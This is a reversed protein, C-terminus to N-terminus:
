EERSAAFKTAINRALEKRVPIFLKESLPKNKAVARLVDRIMSKVLQYKADIEADPLKQLKALMVSMLQLEIRRVDDAPIKWSDSGCELVYCGDVAAESLSVRMSRVKRARTLRKLSIVDSTFCHSSDSLDHNDDFLEYSKLSTKTSDRSNRMFSKVPIVDNSLIVHSVSLM